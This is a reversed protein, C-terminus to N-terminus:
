CGFMSRVKSHTCIQPQESRKTNNSQQVDTSGVQSAGAALPPSPRCCSSPVVQLQTAVDPLFSLPPQTMSRARAGGALLSGLQQIERVGGTRSKSVRPRRLGRDGAGNPRLQSATTFNRPLGIDGTRGTRRGRRRRSRCCKPAFVMTVKERRM